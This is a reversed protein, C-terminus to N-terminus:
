PSHRLAKYQTNMCLEIHGWGVKRWTFVLLRYDSLFWGGYVYLVDADAVWGKFAWKCM